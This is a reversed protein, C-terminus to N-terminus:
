KSKKTTSKKTSSKKTTSTKKTTSAKKTSTSKKTTSKKTSTTKKTTSKKAATKKTTSKKTTSSKKTSTSKKATSKKTTKTGENLLDELKDEVDNDKIFQGVQSLLNTLQNPNEAKENNEVWAEALEDLKGQKVFKKAAKLVDDMDIGSEKKNAM